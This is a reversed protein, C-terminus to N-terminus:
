ARGPLAIRDLMRLEQELLVVAGGAGPTPQAYTVSEGGATEQVVGPAALFARGAAACILTVLWGPAAAFGHTIDAVVGRRRATWWARDQKELVGYESWDVTAVDVVVGVETVENVATLHMTPLPQIGSGSGDVTVSVTASPAIHWGCYEVVLAEAGALLQEATYADFEDFDRKLFGAFQETTVLAM